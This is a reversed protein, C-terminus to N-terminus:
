WPVPTSPLHPAHPGIWAYFPPHDKGSDMVSKIWALSANGMVSTTYDEPRDGTFVSDTQNVWACNVFTHTCMVLQRDLGPPMGTGNTCGYTSWTNLTKGFMGTTYGHDDHLRKIHSDLWFDPNNARSSNQYMCGGATLSSVKNNHEYRDRFLATVYEPHTNKKIEDPEGCTRGM